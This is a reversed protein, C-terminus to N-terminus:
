ANHKNRAVTLLAKARKVDHLRALTEAPGLSAAADKLAGEAEELASQTSSVDVDEPSLAMETIVNIRDHAMEVFGGEVAYVKEKGDMQVLLPGVDIASIVPIHGPLLGIEGMKSPVTLSQIEGELVCGTPTVIDIHM